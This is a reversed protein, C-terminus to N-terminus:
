IEEKLVEVLVETFLEGAYDAEDYSNYETGMELLLARPHYEQNYTGPKTTIGKILDPYMEQGKHYLKQAFQLNRRWNPHPTREDTGVIILIQASKRGDFEVTTATNLGPISDRHVDFVAIVNDHNSLFQTVTERSNTYSRSYQPYDHITDDFVANIGYEKLKVAMNEAVNNVFGREGDVRATGSERVYTEASHTCYYFVKYGSLDGKLKPQNIKPLSIVPTPTSDDKDKNGENIEKNIVGSSAHALIQLNAIILNEPKLFAFISDSVKDYNGSMAINLEGILSEGQENSIQLGSFPMLLTNRPEINQVRNMFYNNIDTSVGIITILIFLQILFVGKLFALFNEKKM